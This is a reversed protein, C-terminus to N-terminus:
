LLLVFADQYNWYDWIFSIKLLSPTYEPPARVPAHQEILLVLRAAWFCAAAHFFSACFFPM